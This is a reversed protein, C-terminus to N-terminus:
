KSAFFGKIMPMVPTDYVKGTTFLSHITFGVANNGYENFAALGAEYYAEFPTNMDGTYRPSEDDSIVFEANFWPINYQESLKDAQAASFKIDQIVFELDQGRRNYCGTFGFMDAGVLSIDDYNSWDGFGGLKYIIKGSYVQRIKPVVSAYFANTRKVTEEKSYGNSNLIMEIQNVPVLFEVNYKEAIEALNLAVAELRSELDDSINHKSLGGDELQHYDPFLIVALGLKRALLINHVIARKAGDKDLRKPTQYDIYNLELKGGDLRHFAHIFQTNIGLDKLEDGFYLVEVLNPMPNYTQIAKIYTPYSREPLSQNLQDLKEWSPLKEDIVYFKKDMSMFNDSFWAKRAESDEPPPGVSDMFYRQPGGLMFSAIVLVILVVIAGVILGLHVIGRQQLRKGLM